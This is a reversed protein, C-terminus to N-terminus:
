KAGGKPRDDKEPHTEGFLVLALAHWAVAIMHNSGTEPDIDEGGWFLNAHRQLAAYSLSWKYGKEFNRDAYKQAGKGFHEALQWLPRVPLLDYRALKSGKEAGTTPDVTRVEGSKAPDTQYMVSLGMWEALAKEARAGKSQEWGDLMMIASCTKIAEIDRSICDDIDFTKPVVNWDTDSPCQMADFGVLRDLDAPNVPEYGRAKLWEAMHDFAPFNFYPVSRMKGAIYVRQNNM